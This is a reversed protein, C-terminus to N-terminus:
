RQTCGGATLADRVPVLKAEAEALEAEPDSDAVIGCGAFLRVARRRRHEARACRSAGSATAPPTWGASRGPTAAATWARSRARDARRRRRDPHRGRGGLPHLSAALTSRRRRGDADHVVGAVDTALHMVNPLHLVFPAEPVNMSSCHPALADAVSRM